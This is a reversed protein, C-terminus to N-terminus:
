WDLGRVFNAGMVRRQGKGDASMIYIGDSALFAISAGDPSFRPNWAGTLTLEKISEPRDVARVAIVGPSEVSTGAKATFVWNKGDPSWDLGHRPYLPYAALDTPTVDVVNRGDIGGYSYRAGGACDPCNDAVAFALQNTSSWAPESLSGIGPPQSADAPEDWEVDNTGDANVFHLTTDYSQDIADDGEGVTFPARPFAYVLRTGDPSWAAGSVEHPSDPEPRGRGVHMAVPRVELDDVELVYLHADRVFAVRTRDPSWVPFLEAGPTETLRVIKTGDEAMWYLDPEPQGDLAGAFVIARQITTDAADPPPVTSADIEPPATGGDPTSSSRGDSCAAVLIVSFTALYRMDLHLQQACAM